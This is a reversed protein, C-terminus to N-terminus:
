YENDKINEESEDLLKFEPVSDIDPYNCSFLLFILPIIKYM